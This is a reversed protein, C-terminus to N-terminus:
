VRLVLWAGCLPKIGSTLSSGLCQLPSGMLSVCKHIMINVIEKINEENSPSKGSQKKFIRTCFLQFIHM